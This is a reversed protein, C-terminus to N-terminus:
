SCSRLAAKPSGITFDVLLSQPNSTSKAITAERIIKNMHLIYTLCVNAWAWRKAQGQVENQKAMGTVSWMALDNSHLYKAELLHSLPVAQLKAWLRSSNVWMGSCSRLLLLIPSHPLNLAQCPSRLGAPRMGLTRSHVVVMDHAIQHRDFSLVTGSQTGLSHKCAM